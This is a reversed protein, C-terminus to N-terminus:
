AVATRPTAQECQIVTVASALGPSTARVKIEGATKQAQIIAVCLGNFARRRHGRDPEHSSPDGNGVGILKGSGTVEFTVMNDAVPVVRGQEDVVSVAVVSVDEGDAHIKAHDPQLMIRAPAGTTERRATMALQGGKYGRAELKGPTYKVKWAVHSDKEM